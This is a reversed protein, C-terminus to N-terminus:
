TVSAHTCLCQFLCLQLYNNNLSPIPSQIGNLKRNDLHKNSLLTTHVVIRRPWTQRIRCCCKWGLSGSSCSNRKKLPARGQQYRIGVLVCSLNCVLEVYYLSTWIYLVWLRVFFTIHVCRVCKVLFLNRQGSKMYRVYQRIPFYAKNM